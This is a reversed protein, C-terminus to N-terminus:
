KDGTLRGVAAEYAGGLLDWGGLKPLILEEELPVRVKVDNTDGGQWLGGPRTKLKRVKETVTKGKKTLTKGKVVRTEGEGEVLNVGHEVFLMHECKQFLASKYSDSISLASIQKETQGVMVTKVKTHAIVAWGMGARHVKDLMGFIADRVIFYGKGHGGGVDGIDQTGERLCLAKQFLLIMEDITDVAVMRIDNKGARKRAIIKDVFDLYAKDLGEEPTNPPPTFRM